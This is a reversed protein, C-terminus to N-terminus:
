VKTYTAMPFCKIRQTPRFNTFTYAATYLKYHTIKSWHSRTRLVLFYIFHNSRPSWVPWRRRTRAWLEISISMEDPPWTYLFLSALSFLTFFLTFRALSDPGPKTQPRRDYRRWGERETIREQNPLSRERVKHEHRMALSSLSLSHDRYLSCTETM